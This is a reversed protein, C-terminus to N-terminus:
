TTPPYNGVLDAMEALNLVANVGHLGLVDELSTLVIRGFRNPYFYDTVAADNDGNAAPPVAPRKSPFPATLENDIM